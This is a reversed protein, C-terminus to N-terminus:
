VPRDVPGDGPGDGTVSVNHHAMTKLLADKAIEGNDIVRKLYTRLVRGARQMQHLNERESAGDAGPPSQLFLHYLGKDFTDLAETLIPNDMLSRAEEARSGDRSVRDEALQIETKAKADM